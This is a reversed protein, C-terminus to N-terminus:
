ELRWTSERLWGRKWGTAPCRALSFFSFRCLWLSHRRSKARARSKHSLCRCATLGTRIHGVCIRWQERQRQRGKRWAHRVACRTAQAARDISNKREMRSNHPSLIIVNAFDLICDDTANVKATPAAEVFRPWCRDALQFSNRVKPRAAASKGDLIPNVPSRLRGALSGSIGFGKRFRQSSKQEDHKSGYEDQHLPRNRVSITSLKSTSSFAYSSSSAEADLIWPSLLRFSCRRRCIM